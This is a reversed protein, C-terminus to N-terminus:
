VKLVVKQDVMLIVLSEVSSEVMQVGKPEVKQTEKQVALDLVMMDDMLGVMLPVLTEVM